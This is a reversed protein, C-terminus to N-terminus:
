TQGLFVQTAHLYSYKSNHAFLSLAFIFAPTYYGRQNDSELMAEAVLTMQVKLTLVGKSEVEKYGEQNMRLNEIM